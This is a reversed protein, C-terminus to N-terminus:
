EFIHKLLKDIWLELREQWADLRKRVSKGDQISAIIFLLPVVALFNLVVQLSSESEGSSVQNAAYWALVYLAILGARVFRFANCALARALNRRKRERGRQIELLENRESRETELRTRLEESQAAAARILEAERRRSEDLAEQQSTLRSQKLVEAVTGDTLAEKEGHTVEMLASKSEQAFRLLYFEQVSIEDDERLKEIKNLYKHWLGPEPQVAAYAHSIMLKRPLDPLEDPMSLWVLNALSLDTICHTVEGSAENFYMSSAKLLPVNHTVFVAKCDEVQRYANGRRLRFIAAVSDVDNAIQRSIDRGPEGSLNERFLADLRAEDIVHHPVYDPKDYVIVGLSRLKDELSQVYILLDSATIGKELIYDISLAFAGHVQPIRGSQIIEHCALLINQVEEYNHAFCKLRAGTSRLASLLELRIDRKADGHLGLAEILFPTDFYFSTTWRRKVNRSNDPLYLVNVLMMGKLITELQMFATPDNTCLHSIFSGVMFKHSAEGDQDISLIPQSKSVFANLLVLQHEALFGELLAEAESRTIRSDYRKYCFAILRDILSEYKRLVEDRVQGFNRRSLREHNPCYVGNRKVIYKRKELRRLLSKIVGAPLKLGFMQRYAHQTSPVSIVSESSQAIVEALMESFPELYDKQRGGEWNVMLIALSAVISEHRSDM